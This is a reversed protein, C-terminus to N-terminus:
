VFFRHGRDGTKEETPIKARIRALFGAERVAFEKRDAALEEEKQCLMQQLEHVQQQLQIESSAESEAVTGGTQDGDDDVLGSSPECAIPLSTTHRMHHYVAASRLALIKLDKSENQAELRLISSTQEQIQLELEEATSLEQGAVTNDKQQQQWVNPNAQLEKLKARLEEKELLLTGVERKETESARRSEKKSEELLQELDQNRKESVVVDKDLQHIRQAFYNTSPQLQYKTPAAALRRELVIESAQLDKNSAELIEIRKASQMRDRKYRIEMDVYDTLLKAILQQARSDHKEELAWIHQQVQPSTHEAHFIEQLADEELQEQEQQYNTFNINHTDLDIEYGIISCLRGDLEKRLSAMETTLARIQCKLEVIGDSKTQSEKELLAQRENAKALKDQVLNKKGPLANGTNAMQTLPKSSSTKGTYGRKELERKLFVTHREREELAVQLNQLQSKLIKIEHSSTTKMLNNFRDEKEQLRGRMRRLPSSPSSQPSLPPPQPRNMIDGSNRENFSEAGM